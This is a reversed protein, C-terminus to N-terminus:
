PVEKIIPETTASGCVVFVRDNYYDVKEVFSLPACVQTYTPHPHAQIDCYIGYFIWAIFLMFGAVIIKALLRDLKKSIMKYYHHYMSVVM